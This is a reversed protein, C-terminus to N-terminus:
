VEFNLPIKGTDWVDWWNGGSSVKLSQLFCQACPLKKKTQIFLKICFARLYYCNENVLGGSSPLPILDM